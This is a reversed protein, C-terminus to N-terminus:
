TLQFSSIFDDEIIEVKNDDFLLKSSELAIRDGRVKVKLLKEALNSYVTDSNEESSDLSLLLDAGQSNVSGKATGSITSSKEGSNQPSYNILYEAEFKHSNTAQYTQRVEVLDDVPNVDESVFPLCGGEVGFNNCIQNIGLNLYGKADVYALGFFIIVVALLTAGALGFYKWVSEGQASKQPYDFSSDEQSGEQEQNVRIPRPQWPKPQDQSSKSIAPHRGSKSSKKEPEKKESKLKKPFDSERKKKSDGELVMEELEDQEAESLEEPEVDSGLSRDLEEKEKDTLSDLNNEGGPEQEM